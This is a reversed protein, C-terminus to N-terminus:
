VYQKYNVVYNNHFLVFIFMFYKGVFELYQKLVKGMVHMRPVTELWLVSFFHTPIVVKIMNYM